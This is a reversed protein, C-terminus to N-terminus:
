LFPATMQHLAKAKDKDGYQDIPDAYEKRFFEQGGFLDPLLFSLQSYLDFTNNMIPTGSLAVRSQAKLQMAAKSTKAQFNKINHSEDVVATAWAILTLKDIDSRMTGYSCIMMQMGEQFFDDVKRQLGN